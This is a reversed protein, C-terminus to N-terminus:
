FPFSKMLLRVIKGIWNSARCCSFLKNSNVSSERNVIIYILSAHSLNRHAVNGLVFSCLFHLVKLKFWVFSIEYLKQISRHVIVFLLSICSFVALSSKQYFMLKFIENKILSILSALVSKIISIFLKETDYVHM